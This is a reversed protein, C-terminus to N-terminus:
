FTRITGINTNAPNRVELSPPPTDDHAATAAPAGPTATAGAAAARSRAVQSETALKYFQEFARAHDIRPDKECAPKGKRWFVTWDKAPVLDTSILFLKPRIADASGGLCKLASVIMSAQDETRLRVIEAPNTFRILRIDDEAVPTLTRRAAVYPMKHGRSKMFDVTITVTDNSVI